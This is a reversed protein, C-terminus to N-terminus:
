SLHAWSYRHRINSITTPTVKYERALASGGEGHALRARIDRVQKETLKSQHHREGLLARDHRRKDHENQWQATWRLNDSKNNAPNGDGHAIVAGDPRVGHFAECVLFHVGVQKWSKYGVYLSIRRYGRKDPFDSLIKGSPGRVKGERSVSFRPYSPVPIFESVRQVEM